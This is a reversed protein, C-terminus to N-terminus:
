STTGLTEIPPAHNVGGVEEQLELTLVPSKYDDLTPEVGVPLVLGRTTPM